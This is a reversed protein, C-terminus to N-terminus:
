MKDSRPYLISLRTKGYTDSVNYYFGSIPRIVESNSAVIIDMGVSGYQNIVEQVSRCNKMFSDISNVVSADIVIEFFEFQEPGSQNLNVSDVIQSYSLKIFEESEILSISHDSEQSFSITAFMCVFFSIAITKM